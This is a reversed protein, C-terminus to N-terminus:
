GLIQQTVSRSPSIAFTDVTEPLSGSMRVLELRLNLSCCMGWSFM